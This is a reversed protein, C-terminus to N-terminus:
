QNNRSSQVAIDRAPIRKVYNRFRERADEAWGSGRPGLVIVDGIAHPPNGQHRDVLVLAIDRRREQSPQGGHHDAPVARRSQSSAKCLTQYPCVISPPRSGQFCNAPETRVALGSNSAGLSRKPARGGVRHPADADLVSVGQVQLPRIQAILRRGTWYDALRSLNRQRNRPGTALVDKAAVCFDARNALFRLSRAADVRRRLFALHRRRAYVM